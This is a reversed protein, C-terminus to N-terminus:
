HVRLVDIDDVALQDGELIFRVFQVLGADDISCIAAVTLPVTDTFSLSVEALTHGFM